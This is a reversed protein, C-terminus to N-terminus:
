INESPKIDLSRLALNVANTCSNVALCYKSNMFKSLSKELKTSESNLSPDM